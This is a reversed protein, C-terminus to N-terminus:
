RTTRRAGGIGTGGHPREPRPGRGPAPLRRAETLIRYARRLVAVRREVTTAQGGRRLGHRGRRRRLPPDEPGAGEFVGEGEKLSISNVVARARCAAAPRGRARELPLQRADGPGEGVEPEAAILNLFRTMAAESDLLGEDMNVDVLQAGNQVQQRAV